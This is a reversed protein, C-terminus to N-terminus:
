SGRFIYCFIPTSHSLSSRPAPHLAVPARHRSLPVLASVTYLRFLLYLFHLFGGECFFKTYKLLIRCVILSVCRYVHCSGELRCCAGDRLFGTLLVPFWCAFLVLSGDSGNTFCTMDFCVVDICKSTHVVYVELALVLEAGYFRILLM